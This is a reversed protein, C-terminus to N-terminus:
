SGAVKMEKNGRNNVKINTCNKMDLFLQRTENTEYSLCIHKFNVDVTSSAPVLQLFDEAFDM